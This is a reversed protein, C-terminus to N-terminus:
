AYYKNQIKLISVSKARLLLFYSNVIKPIKHHPRGLKNIELSVIDPRPDHNYVKAKVKNSQM